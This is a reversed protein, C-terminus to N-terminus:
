IPQINKEIAQKACNVMLMTKGGNARGLVQLLQGEEINFNVGPFM